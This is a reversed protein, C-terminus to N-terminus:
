SRDLESRLRSVEETRKTVRGKLWERGAGAIIGGSLWNPRLKALQGKRFPADRFYARGLTTGHSGTYDYLAVSIRATRLRARANKLQRRLEKRRAENSAM